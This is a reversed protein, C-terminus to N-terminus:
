FVLRQSSQVTNKKVAAVHLKELWLKDIAQDLLLNLIQSLM